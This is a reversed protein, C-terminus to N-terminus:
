RTDSKKLLIIFDKHLTTGDKTVNEIFTPGHPWLSDRIVRFVIWFMPTQLHEAIRELKNVFNKINDSEAKTFNPRLSQLASQVFFCGIIGILMLIVIPILVLLWWANLATLWIGAVLLIFGIVAGLIIIPKIRRIIFEASIARVITIKSQM